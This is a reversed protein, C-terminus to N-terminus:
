SVVTLTLMLVDYEGSYEKELCEFVKRSQYHLKMSRRWTCLPCLRVKCAMMQKLKLSGDERPNFVLHTCCQHLRNARNSWYNSEELNGLEDACLSSIDKYYNELILNSCKKDRWPRERGSSSKDVLIEHFMVTSCTEDIEFLSKKGNVFGLQAVSQSKVDKM